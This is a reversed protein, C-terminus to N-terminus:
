DRTVEWGFKRALEHTRRIDSETIEKSSLYTAAALAGDFGCTCADTVRWPKGKTKIIGCETNHAGYKLLAARFLEALNSHATTM